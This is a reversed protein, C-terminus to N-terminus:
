GLLKAIKSVTAADACNTKLKAPLTWAYHKIGFTYYCNVQTPQGRTFTLPPALGNLTTGKPLAYLGAKISAPTVTSSKSAAVASQLLVGSVWSYLANPGNHNGMQPAYRGIAMNYTTLAPTHAYWPVDAESAQLGQLGAVKQMGSVVAGDFNLNVATVGQQKCENAVKAVVAAADAIQYSEAGSSKVAQCVAVYSPAAASISQSLVVSVGVSPGVLKYLTPANACQPSEACYLAAVKTGFQKAITLMGVPLAIVDTGSPYFDPNSVFPINLSLGGVVPVGAQEVTSAWDTDTSSQDGVIAVVHDQNILTKVDTLAIAASGQDDMVYLKVPHGALGGHANVWDAWAQISYKAGIQSSSTAASYTGINGLPIPTGSLKASVSASSAASCVVLALCGTLLAVVVHMWRRMM